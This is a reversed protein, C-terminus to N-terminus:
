GNHTVVKWGKKIAEDRLPITLWGKGKYGPHSVHQLYVVRGVRRWYFRLKTARVPLIKHRRTGADAYKAYSAGSGVSGHVKLGTVWVRDTITAALHGTSYAGSAARLRAKLAVARILEEVAKRSFRLGTLYAQAPHVHITPM